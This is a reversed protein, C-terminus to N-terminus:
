SAVMAQRASLCLRCQVGQGRAALTAVVSEVKTIPMYTAHMVCYKILFANIEFIKINHAFRTLGM